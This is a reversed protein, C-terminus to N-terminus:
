KLLSNWDSAFKELGQNTLDHNLDFEQWDKNLDLQQYPIDRLSGKPYRYNGDPTVKDLDAWEKVIKFPLTVIDTGLKFCELLHDMNRISAALVEVHGDGNKYMKIINEILSMGNEGKDDLRGIFPSVFVQGKEAGKTACYVAAAQSQSFVLTMNVRMGLKISEQAAKLGAFTLPYKIHANPIWTYMQKGQELMEESKTNKDAYVQISVSGDPVMLSIESVVSKYLDLLEDETFKETELKNAVEPNKAILTPNTTQGNLFGLLNIAERTEKPDGGDLFIKTKLNAPRM